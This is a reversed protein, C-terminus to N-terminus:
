IVAEQNQIHENMKEMMPKSWIAICQMHFCNCFKNYFRKSFPFTLIIYLTSIVSDICNLTFHVMYVTYYFQFIGTEVAYDISISHVIQSATFIQTSTVTLFTLLFYKIMVDFIKASRKSRFGIGNITTNQQTNQQTNQETNQQTIQHANQQTNDAHEGNQQSHQEIQTSMSKEVNKTITIKYIKSCFLYLIYINLIWDITFKIWVAPGYVSNFAEWDFIGLVQFLWFISILQQSLIFCILITWFICITNNSLKYRTSAFTIRLREFFLLYTFFYGCAWFSNYIGWLFETCQNIQGNPFKVYIIYLHNSIQAFLFFTLSCLSLLKIHTQIIIHQKRQIWYLQYITYLLASIIFLCCIFGFSLIVTWIDTNFRQHFKLDSM